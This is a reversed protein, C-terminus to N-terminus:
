DVGDGADEDKPESSREALRGLRPAVLMGIVVGIIAFAAIAVAFAALEGIM